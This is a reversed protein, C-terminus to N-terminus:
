ASAADGAEALVHQRFKGPGAENQNEYWSVLTNLNEGHVQKARMVGFKHNLYIRVPSEPTGEFGAAQALAAFRGLVEADPAVFGEDGETLVKPKQVEATTNIQHVRAGEAQATETPQSQEAAPAAQEAPAETQVPAQAAPMDAVETAIKVAWKFREVGEDVIAQKWAEQAEAPQGFPVPHRNKVADYVFGRARTHSTAMRDPRGGTTGAQVRDALTLFVAGLAAANKFNLPQPDIKEGEVEGADIAANHRAAVEAANTNMLDAALSEAGVAAQVMYSGLNVRGDTNFAVYPAAEKALVRQVERQPTEAQPDVGAALVQEVTAGAALALAAASDQITQPLGGQRANALGALAQEVSFGGGGGSVGGTAPANAAAPADVARIRGGSAPDEAPNTVAEASLTGDIGAFINMCNEKAIDMTKRLEAIPVDRPIPGNSNKRKRQSEIRYSVERGSEHAAVLLPYIAETKSTWGGVPHKLGEVGMMVQVNNGNEKLEKVIGTGTQVYVEARVGNDDPGDKSVFPEAM